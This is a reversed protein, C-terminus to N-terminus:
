TEYDHYKGTVAYYNVREVLRAVARMDPEDPLVHHRVAEQLKQDYEDVIKFFDPSYRGDELMYDGRRISLLVPLDATRHTIIKKKGIIDAAMMLLRVLHMAHKNLHNSDKKKNRGTLREYDRLVARTRGTLESFKRLPYHRFEADVFIETEMSPEESLDLSLRFDGSGTKDSGGNLNFQEVARRVSNLIHKEKEAQPFHIVPLPM